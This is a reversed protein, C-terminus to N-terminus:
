VINLYKKLNETYLEIKPTKKINLHTQSHIEPLIIVINDKLFRYEPYKSKYLCHHYVSSLERFYEKKMLRGTEFCTCNGYVDAREDWIQLFFENQKQTEEKKLKNREKQKESIKKLPTRKLM